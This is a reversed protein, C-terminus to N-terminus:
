ADRNRLGEPVPTAICVRDEIRGRNRETTRRRHTKSLSEEDEHVRDFHSRLDEHLHPQNEKVALVYDAKRERITAAIEKQCGMADLTVIEGTLELIELLKPVATIENGKGDVPVEGLVLRNRTAWASVLHLAPLGSATDFSRRLTKGDIAVVEGRTAEHLAQVGRVFCEHFCRSDLM